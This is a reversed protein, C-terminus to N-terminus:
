KILSLYKPSVQKKSKEIIKALLYQVIHVHVTRPFYNENTKCHTERVKLHM